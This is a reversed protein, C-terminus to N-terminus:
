SRITNSRYGVSIEISVILIARTSLPIRVGRVLRRSRFLDYSEEAGNKTQRFHLSAGITAGSRSIVSLFLQAQRPWEGLARPAVLPWVSCARLTPRPAIAKRGAVPSRAM